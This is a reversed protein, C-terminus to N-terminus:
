RVPKRKGLDFQLLLGFCREGEFAERAPKFSPGLHVVFRSALKRFGYSLFGGGGMQWGHSEDWRGIDALLLPEVRQGRFSTQNYLSESEITAAPLDPPASFFQGPEPTEYQISPTRACSFAPQPAQRGMQRKDEFQPNKGDPNARAVAMRACGISLVSVLILLLRRQRNCCLFM